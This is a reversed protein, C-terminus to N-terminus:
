ASCEMSYPTSGFGLLVQFVNRRREDEFLLYKFLNYEHFM